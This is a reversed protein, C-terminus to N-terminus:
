GAHPRFLKKLWGLVSSNCSSSYTKPTLTVVTIDDDSGNRLALEILNRHLNDSDSSEIEKMIDENRCYGSLGDSCLIILGDESLVSSTFEPMCTERGGGVFRTVLNNDPHSYSEELSIKHESILQQVYSHDTTISSLNKHPQYYYCRSDGCWAVYVNCGNRLLLVVTTGMGDAEPHVTVYNRIEKDAEFIASLAIDRFDTETSKGYLNENLYSSITGTAIGSAVDGSAEGGMGDAIVIYNDGCIFSDENKEHHRSKATISNTVFDM